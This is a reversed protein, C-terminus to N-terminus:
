NADTKKAVFKDLDKFSYDPLNPALPKPQTECYKWGIMFVVRFTAPVGAHGEEAYLGEYVANACQLLTRSITPPRVKVANSEGMMKLDELLAFMDPYNVVVDEVDITIMTLKARQMLAGIDSVDALPSLRPSVRGYREMEALQISSRLEYLSDGGIMAGMFMGDPKLMKEIRKFAGPLDNIWHLSMNSLIADVSNENSLYTEDDAVVRQLNLLSNFPLNEDRYLCEASSDVMTISGIRSRVLSADSNDECMMREISGAGSGLDIVENFQRSVFALRGLLRRAFEDQLYDVQRSAAVNRAARSRQSLKCQRSFVEYAINLRATLRM